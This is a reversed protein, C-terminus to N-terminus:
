WPIQSTFRYAGEPVAFLCSLSSKWLVSSIWRSRVSGGVMITPPRSWNRGTAPPSCLFCSSCYLALCVPAHGRILQHTPLLGGLVWVCASCGVRVLVVQDSTHRVSGVFGCFLHIFLSPLMWLDDPPTSAYLGLHAVSVVQALFISFSHLAVPPPM